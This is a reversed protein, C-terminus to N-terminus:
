RVMGTRRAIAVAQTRNSASLKANISRLHTRVTSDSVFLTRAMATNSHGEALLRLVRLEAKTLAELPIEAPAPSPPPESAAPMATGFAALLRRAYDDAEMTRGGEALLARRLLAGVAPGEDALFRVLGEARAVTLVEGMAEIAAAEDDCRDLAVGRLIRLKLARRHRAAGEAAEIAAVLRPLAERPRGALIEWRLEALEYYDVDNALLHLRQERQWLARDRARDLENRAARGHGQLLLLRARELKAGAVVRPLRRQHGAYELETLLHFARDADGRSHALRSMMLYGLILQDPLGCDKALPLYVRLLREAQERDDAEYLAGAHLVGAWANGKNRNRVVEQTAEDAARFRANAQRIRGERLDIIGEVSESYMLNFASTERSQTRRAADLLKRAEGPRGIVSLITAMGNALVSDAFPKGTPIRPLLTRGIEYAEEHRDMMALLVPRLATAHAVVDPDDCAGFGATELLAMAEAPGRTFCLAWAHVAQLGARRALIGAPLAAFWRSLLRMRGEALLADAHEAILAVARPWDAAEIFHEIAPIPRGQGEYWAAAARHLASLEQPREGILQGRLFGAFLSHYRYTRTEGEIRTLFVGAAELRVLIAAADQGGTVADCLSANLDRLISTRLLFDRTEAPQRALVDDALYDSVAEDSGSFGAIFEGEAERQELALSALRLAVIWGETKGHLLALHATALPRRLQCALFAETEEISFRLQAAGIELLQGAARMRSLRLEPRGRSGIVLRAHPPLHEVIEAVLSLVAPESIAEFEDLFLAFPGDLAAFTEFIDPASSAHPEGDAADPALAAGICELFRAIDNDAADLTLWFTRAGDADMRARIQAMATTKGFGAPAQVLILRAGPAAEVADLVRQRPVQWAAAIPPSIKALMRSRQSQGLRQLM